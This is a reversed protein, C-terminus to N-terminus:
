KKGCNDGLLLDVDCENLIRNNIYCVDGSKKKPIELMCNNVIIMDYGPRRSDYWDLSDVRTERAWLMQTFLLALMM